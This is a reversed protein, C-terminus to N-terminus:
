LPPVTVTSFASANYPVHDSTLPTKPPHHSHFTFGGGAFPSYPPPRAHSTLHTKQTPQSDPHSGPHSGPRSHRCGSGSAGGFSRSHAPSYPPPQTPPPRSKRLCGGNEVNKLLANHWSMITFDIFLTKFLHLLACDIAYTTVQGPNDDDTDVLSKKKRIM